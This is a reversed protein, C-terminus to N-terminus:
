RGVSQAQGKAYLQEGQKAGNEDWTMLRGDQLGDKFEAQVRKKGNPYWRRVM